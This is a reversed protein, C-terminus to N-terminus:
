TLGRPEVNLVKNGVVGIGRVVGGGAGESVGGYENAVGGGINGGLVRLGYGPVNVGSFIVM